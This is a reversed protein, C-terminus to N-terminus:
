SIKVNVVDPSAGSYINDYFFVYNVAVATGGTNATMSLNSTVTNPFIEIQVPTAESTSIKGYVLKKSPIQGFMFYDGKTYSGQAITGYAVELSDYRTRNFGAIDLPNVKNKVVFHSNAM